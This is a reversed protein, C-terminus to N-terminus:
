RHLGPAGEGFLEFIKRAEQLVDKDWTKDTPQVATCDMRVIRLRRRFVMSAKLEPVGLMDELIDCREENDAEKRKKGEEDDKEKEGHAQNLILFFAAGRLEDENLLIHIQERAQVIKDPKDWNQSHADVVFIIGNIQLYRYFMPWMEMFTENGPIDWIGYTGRISRSSLEEYHYGPDESQQNAGPPQRIGAFDRILEHPKWQNVKLKYLLSSKGAGELGVLLFQYVNDSKFFSFPPVDSLNKLLSTIM